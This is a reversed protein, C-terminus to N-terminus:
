GAPRRTARRDPVRARRAPAAVVRSAFADYSDGRELGAADEAALVREVAASAEGAAQRHRAFIRLSGGHTGLEEVDVVALGHAAFIRSANRLTFYSFHEHYITDFQNEDILRLLHPVEITVTGGPALLRAIGAVFDNLDPVQALVNNGVILDATGYTEVVEDAVATGFFRVLTPIGDAVAVAAVNAAPDIGLVRM